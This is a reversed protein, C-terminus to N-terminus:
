SEQSPSPAVSTHPRGLSSFDTAPQSAHSHPRTGETVTGFLQMALLSYMALLILFLSAINILAPLSLVLMTLLVQLGRLSKVVRLTRMLRAVRAIRLIRVLTPNTGVAAALLQLVWDVLSLIVISFDFIHWADRIYENFTFATIKITAEVIFIITCATNLHGLVVEELEVNGYGDLAMLLTNFLIVGLIAMEFRPSTALRHCRVRWGCCQEPAPHAPRRKPKTALMQEMAEAWQKQGESMIKVGDEKKRITDFTEVLVGVFLNVLCMAGMVVWAILFLANAPQADREPAVDVGKADIVAFMVDPWGELTSVEFLLLASTAVNDFSGLSPAAWEGGAAECEQRTQHSTVDVSTDLVDTGAVCSSFHGGFLQVGLVSFISLFLIYVMAVDLVRPLANLLLSTVLKMSPIMSLLRLPRLVRLVRLVRFAPSSGAFVSLLSTSVVFADLQHWRSKLYAQPTSYLGLAVVKIMLECTFIMTSGLDVRYLALALASDPDLTCSQLAMAGSSIVIVSLIVTDFSLAIGHTARGIKCSAKVVRTAAKRLPNTPALCGLAYDGDEPTPSSSGRRFSGSPTSGGTPSPAETSATTNPEDDEDDGTDFSGILTAVVLNMLLFAGVVILAVFYLASVFGVSSNVARWVENWDEQTAIITVALMANGISDFNPRPPQGLEDLELQDGFFQMGLLAFIFLFLAFLLLLWFLPMVARMLSALLRQLSKWAKLLKFVRLLRLARLAQANIPLDLEKAAIEILSAVVIVGDFRNFADAWYESFGLACLKLVMEITFAATFGYNALELLKAQSEPEPYRECMMLLMNLVVLGTVGTQFRESSVLRRCASDKPKPAEITPYATDAMATAHSCSGSTMPVDALPGVANAGPHRLANPTASASPPESLRPTRPTPSEAVAHKQKEKDQQEQYTHWTVALLLNLVYFSGFVIIVYVYVAGGLGGVRRLVLAVDSWGELTMVEKLTMWARLITDFSMTGDNPNEGYWVCKGGDACSGDDVCVGAPELQLEQLRRSDNSTGLEGTQEAYDFSCRQRLQGAFLQVGFVGAVVLFFATLMLVDCLAPLSGLLANVQKRMGPLRNITRLPRLARVARLGSVNDLQPFILPVWAALVVSCDLVNWPDGLYSYPGGALGLAGVRLVLEVTFFLTFFLEVQARSPRVSHSFQRAALGRVAQSGVLCRRAKEAEPQALIGFHEPPGQAALFVCNVIIAVLVSRELWVMEVLSMCLRRLPHDLRLACCTRMYRRGSPGELGLLTQRDRANIPFFIKGFCGPVELVLKKIDRLVRVWRLRRVASQMRKVASRAVELKVSPRPKRQPSRGQNGLLSQEWGESKGGEGGGM